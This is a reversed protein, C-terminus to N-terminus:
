VSFIASVGSSASFLDIFHSTEADIPITYTSVFRDASTLYDSIIDVAQFSSAALLPITTTVTDVLINDKYLKTTVDFTAISASSSNNKQFFSMASVNNLGGKVEIDTAAAYVQDIFRGDVSVAKRRDFSVPNGDLDVAVVAGFDFRLNHDDDRQTAKRYQTFNYKTGM